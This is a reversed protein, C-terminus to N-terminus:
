INNYYRQFLRSGIDSLIDYEKIKKSMLESIIDQGYYAGYFGGAITGTTDCDGVHLM